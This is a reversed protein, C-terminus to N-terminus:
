LPPRMALDCRFSGRVRACVCVCVYALARTCGRALTRRACARVRSVPSIIIATAHGIAHLGYSIIYCHFNPQRWENNICHPRGSLDDSSPLPSSESIERPLPHLGSVGVLNNNTRPSDYVGPIIGPSGRLGGRFSKGARNKRAVPLSARSDMPVRNYLHSGNTRSKACSRVPDEEKKTFM